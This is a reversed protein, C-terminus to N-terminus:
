WLKKSEKNSDSHALADIIDESVRLRKKSISGDTYDLHDLHSKFDISKKKKKLYPSKRLSINFEFDEQKM